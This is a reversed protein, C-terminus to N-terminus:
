VMSFAKRYIDNTTGSLWKSAVKTKFVCFNSVECTPHKCIHKIESFLIWEFFGYVKLRPFWFYFFAFENRPKLVVFKREQCVRVTQETSYTSKVINYEATALNRKLAKVKRASLHHLIASNKSTKAMISLVFSNQASLQHKLLESPM